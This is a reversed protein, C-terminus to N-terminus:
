EPHPHLEYLGNIELGNPHPPHLLQQLIDLQPHPHLLPHPPNPELLQNAM